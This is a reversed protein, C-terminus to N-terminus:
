NILAKSNGIVLQCCCDGEHIIALLISQLVATDKDRGDCATGVGAIRALFVFVM